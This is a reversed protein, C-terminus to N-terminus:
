KSNVKLEQIIKIIDETTASYELYPGFTGWVSKTKTLGLIRRIKDMDDRLKSLENRQPECDNWGQSRGEEKIRDNQRKKIEYWEPSFPDPM